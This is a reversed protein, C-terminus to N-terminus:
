ADYNKAFATIVTDINNIQIVPNVKSLIAHHAYKFWM